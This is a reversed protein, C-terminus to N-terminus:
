PLQPFLKVLLHMLLGASLPVTLNDDRVITVAEVVTAAVAGITGVSWPINPVLYAVVLAVALFALSGEVSKVKRIKHRGWRRGVMAAAVDGVIIFTIAATAIYRPFFVICLFGSLLIYLAGTFNGNQEQPRIMPGFVRSLVGWPALRRLRIVEFAIIFLNVAAMIGIAWNRPFLLYCVPILLALFHTSKRLGEQKYTLNEPSVIPQQRLM